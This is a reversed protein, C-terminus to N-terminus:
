VKIKKIRTETTASAMWNNLDPNSQHSSLETGLGKETFNHTLYMLAYRSKMQKKTEVLKENMGDDKAKTNM